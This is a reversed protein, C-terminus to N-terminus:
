RPAAALGSLDFFFADAALRRNAATAQLLAHTRLARQLIAGIGGIRDPPATALAAHGRALIFSLYDELRGPERAEADSFAFHGALGARHVKEFRDREATLSTRFAADRLLRILVGPRGAALALYEKQRAAPIGTLFPEMDADSVFAFSLPVARSRITALVAGAADTILFFIVNAGPEELTKLLAVAADRSLAEVGDIVAIIRKGGWPTQSVRERMAHIDKIGIDRKEPDTALRAERSLFVIDPHTGARALRCASCADDREGDTPCSRLWGPKPNECLLREAVALALTRKGVAAPGSFLYAHALVGAEMARLLYEQNRGHGAIM